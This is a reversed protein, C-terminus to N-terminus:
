ASPDIRSSPRSSEVRGRFHTRECIPTTICSGKRNEFDSRSLRRSPWPPGGVGLDLLGGPRRADVVRDEGKFLAVVGKDALAPDGKGAALPLAHGDGPGHQLVRGQEDEVVGHAGDVPLGLRHDELRQLLAPAPGRRKHDGVPQGGKNVGVADDNEVAAPDDLGPGVGLEGPLGSQVAAEPLDLGPISVSRFRSSPFHVVGVVLVFELRTEVGAEPRLDEPPRQM